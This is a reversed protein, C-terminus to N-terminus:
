AIEAFPSDTGTETDMFLLPVAGEDLSYHALFRLRVARVKAMQQKSCRPTAFIAEISSPLRDRWLDADIIVQAACLPWAAALYRYRVRISVWVPVQTPLFRM